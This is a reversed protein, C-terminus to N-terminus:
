TIQKLATVASLEHRIGRALSQRRSSRERLGAAGRQQRERGRLIVKSCHGGRRDNAEAQHANPLLWPQSTDNSIVAVAVHNDPSGAM